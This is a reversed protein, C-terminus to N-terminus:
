GAHPLQIVPKIIEKKEFMQYARPVEDVSHLIEDIVFSPKAKGSEILDRLPPQLRHIEATGSKLSLGKMWLQGVLVSFVGQHPSALPMGPSPGVPAYIGIVGIGGTAETVRICNNLVINEQPELGRPEHTMIQKVPDKKTFDIPIAGISAAKELRASVYDVSYVKTAGRLLASYACLLGVPGAGFVAVTDGPQFNACDLAFWATPFIDALLIFDLDHETSQPLKFCSSDAFPIRIYEAQAGELYGFDPGGGEIDVLTQPNYTLCFTLRGRLCNNCYGCSVLEIMVRDGLKLSKLGDGADVITGIAEHGMLWPPNKSGLRGRYTHLDSGCIASTTIQIVVDNPHQIEPIPREQVSVHFPKGEWVTAKLTKKQTTSM